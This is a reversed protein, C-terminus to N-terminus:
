PVSLEIYPQPAGETFIRQQVAWAFFNTMSSVDPHANRFANDLSVLASDPLARLSPLLLSFESSWADLVPQM